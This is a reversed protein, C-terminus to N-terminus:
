FFLKTIGSSLGATFDAAKNLVKTEYEPYEPHAKSVESRVYLFAEVAVPKFLRLSEVTATLKMAASMPTSKPKGFFRSISPDMSQHMTELNLNLEDMEFGKV